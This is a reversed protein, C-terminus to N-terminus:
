GGTWAQLRAPQIKSSFGDDKCVSSVKFNNGCIESLCEVSGSMGEVSELYIWKRLSLSSTWVKEEKRLSGVSGIGVENM